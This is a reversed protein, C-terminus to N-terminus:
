CVNAPQTYVVTSTSMQTHTHKETTIKRSHRETQSKLHLSSYLVHRHADVPPQFSERGIPWRCHSKQRCLTDCTTSLFRRCVRQMITDCTTSLFRRCVCQITTDCTTSLFRRCVCQSCPLTVLLQSLDGVSM